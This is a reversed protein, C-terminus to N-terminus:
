TGRRGVGCEYVELRWHINSNEDMPMYFSNSVFEIIGWCCPLMGGFRVKGCASKAMMVLRRSFQVRSM